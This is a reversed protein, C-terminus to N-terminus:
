PIYISLLREVQDILALNNSHLLAQQLYFVTREQDERTSFLIGLHFYAPAYEPDKELARHFFAQANMEDDLDLLVQGMVDLFFPDQDDFQVALRAAPLGLEKVQYSYNVCFEALQSYYLGNQPDLDIAHQFKEVAIEFDGLAAQSRGQEVYLDPNEPWVDEVVTFYELAKTHTGERQWYLGLFMNALPSNEDLDHAKELAELPEIVPIEIHQLAEGWYAWAELYDPRLAAAKEFAFSALRWEGISALAQGTSTYQYAPEETISERIATAVLVADPFDEAVQDLNSLAGDPQYAASLLAFHFLREKTSGEKSLILFSRWTDVASKLDGQTEYLEALKILAPPSEELDKWVSDASIEDGLKLYVDGLRIKGADSLTKRELASQYSGRALSYDGSLYASDGAREWLSSWWPNEEALDLLLAAQDQYADASLAFQLKRTKDTVSNSVPVFGIMSGILILVALRIAINQRETM